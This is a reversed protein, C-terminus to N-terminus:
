EGFLLAGLVPTVDVLSACERGDASVQQDCICQITTKLWDVQEGNAGAWGVSAVALSDQPHLGGHVGVTPGGFYFGGTYNSVLVIDGSLPGALRRLRAEADVTQIEPHSTLYEGITTLAGDPCLALYDAQWGQRETNRILVLDLAGLLDASYVGRLHAEWFAQAVYLVDESFRPPEDWSARRRRVYVQAMGGNSAVVADTDPGERPKDHVDLGLVDFLYGMERDFPFSLRLSHRDDPIVQIQGHDSVVCVLLNDLLQAARLGEVLRGVQPDIGKVLYNLQADPGDRHSAHDLGMFYVTLLDPRAGNQLHALAQNIMQADFDEASVGFLGAGRMFRAIDILSPRIWHSAGRSVMHYIVTSSLGRLAAQEYLTPTHQSMTQGVLGVPGSFTLVADEYALADGVDFAYFRPVGGTNLGFRDYFQNGPIAHSDPHQGTFITSQACFTISPFTSVPDIHYASGPGAGELLGSLNPILERKIALHFVDQRLGDIDIVLLRRPSQEKQM